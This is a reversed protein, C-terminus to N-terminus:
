YGCYEKIYCLNKCTQLVRENVWLWSGNWDPFDILFDSLLLNECSIQISDAFIIYWYVWELETMNNGVDVFYKVIKFLLM